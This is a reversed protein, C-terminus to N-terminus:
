WDATANVLDATDVKNAKSFKIISSTSTVFSTILDPARKAYSILAGLKAIATPDKIKSVSKGKDIATKSSIVMGVSGKGYPVLSKTFTSKGEASLVKSEALKADIAKSVEQNSTIQKEMDDKGTLEGAELASANQSAIASQEKLGLADAMLVQSKALELLAASVQKLLASQDNILANVDVGGSKSGGGILSKADWSWVNSSVFLCTVLVILAFSKRM